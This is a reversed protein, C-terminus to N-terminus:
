EATRIPEALLVGEQRRLFALAAQPDARELRVAYAGVASPGDVVQGGVEQLLKAIREAPLEPAFVLRLNGGTKAPPRDSLTRFGATPQEAQWTLSLPLALLLMAAAAALWRPASPRFRRRRTAVPPAAVARPPLRRQFRAYAAGPKLDLLPAEALSAAMTQLGMLERRCVLCHRLHAQVRAQEEGELSHNVYWPLLLAVAEHEGPRHPNLGNM